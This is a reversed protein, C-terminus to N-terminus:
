GVRLAGVGGWADISYRDVAGAWGPAVLVGGPAASARWPTAVSDAGARLRVRAPTAHPLVIEVTGASDTLTIPVTGTPEPLRLDILGTAGIALRTLHGRRLDLHQEGAGKPLRIDWRVAQNLVITVADPGDDGTPRLGLRIRGAAGTVRPALGSRVPTTIRYLLGPLRAVRLDVRSAADAVFLHAGTRGHLPGDLQHGVGGGVSESAGRGSGYSDPRSARGTAGPDTCAGLLLTVLLVFVAASRHTSRRHSLAPPVM